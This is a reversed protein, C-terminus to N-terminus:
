EEIFADKLVKSHPYYTVHAKKKYYYTSTNWNYIEQGDIYDNARLKEITEDPIDLRIEEGDIETYFYGWLTSYESTIVTKEGTFIDATYDKCIFVHLMFLFIIIVISVSYRSKYKQIYRNKHFYSVLIMITIATSVILLATILYLHYTGTKVHTNNVYFLIIGNVSIFLTYLWSFKNITKHEEPTLKENDNM